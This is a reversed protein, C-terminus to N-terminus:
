SFNKKIEEAAEKGLIKGARLIKRAQYVALTSVELETKILYDCRSPRHHYAQAAFIDLSRTLLTLWSIDKPERLLKPWFGNLKDKNFDAIKGLVNNKKKSCDVGIVFDAGLQYCTKTPLYSAVGGDVLWKNKRKVPKFLIPLAMSARLAVAAKGRQFVFVRGTKIDTALIGLPIKSEELNRDETLEKIKETVVKGEVLGERSINLDFFNLIDRRRVSLLFKKLRPLTGLGYCAAVIAGASSGTMFDIPLGAKELQEIIAIQAIGRAGGASLALGIKPRKKKM